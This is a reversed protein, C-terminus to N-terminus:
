TKESWPHPTFIHSGVWDLSTVVSFASFVSFVSFVQISCVFFLIETNQKSETDETYHKEM